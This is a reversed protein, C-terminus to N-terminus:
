EKKEQEQNFAQLNNHNNCEETRSSLTNLKNSATNLNSNTNDVMNIKNRRLIVEEKINNNNNSAEKTKSINNSSPWKNTKCKSM